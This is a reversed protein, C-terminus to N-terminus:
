GEGILLYMGLSGLRYQVTVVVVGKKVLPKPDYQAASGRRFNGGHIWVV